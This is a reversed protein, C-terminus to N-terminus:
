LQARSDREKYNDIIKEIMIEIMNDEKHDIIMNDEKVM